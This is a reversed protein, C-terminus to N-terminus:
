NGFLDKFFGKVKRKRKAKKKEKDLSTEKKKFIDFVDDIFSDEKYDECDILKSSLLTSNQMQKRFNPDKLAIALTKGILPLALRGGSGLSGNNFHISPYSAGVRSVMVLNSNYGVFWADAFDQSTGTKGAFPISVGYTSRIARGTGENIAKELIENIQGAVEDALVRTKITKSKKYLLNGNKDKISEIAYDDVLYGNNAFTSYATALELMSVSNTGLIVSPGKELPTIFGLSKWLEALNNQETEFFLHVTPINKSNALAAALSYQGGSEGDYNQPSWDDYDNLVIPKNSLYDCPSKGDKIAQAYLIPKFTSAMQRKALIQDYPYYNFDIGGIWMKIAGTQPNMALMGAHLQSLAHLLSDKITKPPSITSEDWYFLNRKKSSSSSFDVNNQKAVKQALAVLEAKSSGSKYLRDLQNQMAALHDRM